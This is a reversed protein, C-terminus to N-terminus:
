WALGRLVWTVCRVGRARTTSWRPEGCGGRREWGRVWTGILWRIQSDHFQSVTCLLCPSILGKFESNRKKGNRFSDFSGVKDRWNLDLCLLHQCLNNASPNGTGKGSLIIKPGDPVLTLFELNVHPVPEEEYSKNVAITSPLSSNVDGLLLMAVSCYLLIAPKAALYRQITHLLLLRQYKLRQIWKM